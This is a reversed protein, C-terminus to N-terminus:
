AGDAVFGAWGGAYHRQVGRKVEDDTLAGADVGDFCDAIWARAEAMLDMDGGDRETDITHSKDRLWM